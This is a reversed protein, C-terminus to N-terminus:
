GLDPFEGSDNKPEPRGIIQSEAPRERTSREAERDAFAALEEHTAAVTGRRIRERIEEPVAAARERLAALDLRPSRLRQARFRAQKLWLYFTRDPLRTMEETAWQRAAKEKPPPPLAHAFFKADELACRFAIEIGANTRLLKVLAPDKAAVQAPQQNVFWIGVRKFRALALLRSFQEIQHRGLGEQFEELIVWVPPTDELVPRSLIARTLRGTAIGAWFRGAREAGAPPNGADIVTLGITLMEPFSVCRPASLALRTERLFLFTDLRACLADLSTRNERRFDAAYAQLNPDGSTRADSVFLEPRRLWDRIVTLPRNREIALSTMWLFARDMRVGLDEGLAEEVAAATTFAQVERAVGAERETIRLMPLYRKDFPRIVRLHELLRERGPRRVLAPIVVDLLLEALEGKHDVVIVVYKSQALVQLLCAIIEFSKGTGTGGTLWGHVGIADSTPLGAWFPSNGTSVARGLTINDGGPSVKMRQEFLRQDRQEEASQADLRRTHWTRARAVEDRVIRNWLWDM